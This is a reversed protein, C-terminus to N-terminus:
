LLVDFKRRKSVGRDVIEMEVGQLPEVLPSSSVFQETFNTDIKEVDSPIKKKTIDNMM